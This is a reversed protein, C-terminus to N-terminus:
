PLRSSGSYGGTIRHVLLDKFSDMDKWSVATHLSNGSPDIRTYGQDDVRINLTEMVCFTESFTLYVAVTDFLTSSHTNPADKDQSWIRYNELIARAVPHLSEKVKAYRRGELQVLGCTDLPTITVPWGAAFVKQCAKVDARVNYEDSIEPSGGYGLRISGQMGVFRAKRAITPERRLAEAINPLPGVCLLTIPEEAQLITDIIAQVGDQYIIGPYRDLEYDEIWEAQPGMDSNRDGIGIGIPVDAHGTFELFKAFLRARYLPKGQDGVVLKVDVRPCQLLFGLAWTDDIDDGIDSDYIVPIKGQRMTDNGKKLSGGWVVSLCLFFVFFIIRNLSHDELRNKM